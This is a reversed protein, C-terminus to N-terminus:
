RLDDVSCGEHASRREATRETVFLEAAALLRDGLAPAGVTCDVGEGLCLRLDAGVRRAALAFRVSDDGLPLWIRDAQSPAVRFGRLQLEERLRERERVVADVRARVQEPARLSALAARQAVGSLDGPLIQRQILDALEPACAAYALDLGGLGHVASLSRVVVLRPRSATLAAASVFDPDRVFEWGSEDLVVVAQPPVRSLFRQLRDGSLVSGTPDHPNALAVVLPGCDHDVALADLDQGGRADLPVRVCAVALRRALDACAEFGGVSVRLRVAPSEAALARLLAFTLGLASAGLVVGDETVGAVEAIGEVLDAGLPGSARRGQLARRAAGLASPLPGHGIFQM